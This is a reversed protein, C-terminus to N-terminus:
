SFVAKKLCRGLQLIGQPFCSRGVDGADGADAADGPCAWLGVFGLWRVRRLWCVSLMARMMLEDAGIAPMRLHHWHNGANLMTVRMSPDGPWARLGVLGGHGHVLFPGCVPGFVRRGVPTVFVARLHLLALQLLLRKRSSM